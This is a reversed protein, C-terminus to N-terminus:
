DSSEKSQRKYLFLGAIVVVFLAIVGGTTFRNCIGMAFLIVGVVIQVFAFVRNDNKRIMGACGNFICCVAIFLILYSLQM